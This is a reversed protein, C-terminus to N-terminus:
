ITRLTETVDVRTAARAPIAAALLAVGALSLTALGWLLPSLPSVGVLRAALVQAFAYSGALGFFLGAGTIAASQRLVGRWLHAPTAGLALRIGMDRRRQAGGHAVVGYLGICALLTALVALVGVIRARSDWDRRVRGVADTMPVVATLPMAPNLQAAIGAAHDAVAVTGNTRVVVTAGAEIGGIGSSTAPEYFMEDAPKV